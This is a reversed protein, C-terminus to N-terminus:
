YTTSVPSLIILSVNTLLKEIDQIAKLAQELDINTIRPNMVLKGQRTQFFMDEKNSLEELAEYRQTLVDGQTSPQLLSSRLLRSGM